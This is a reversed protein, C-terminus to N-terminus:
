LYLKNYTKLLSLSDSREDPNKCLMNDLILAKIKKPTYYWNFKNGPIYRKNEFMEYLLIGCSYIDIKNNYPKQENIEPAMYRETGVNITLDKFITCNNDLNNYSNDENITTLNNNSSSKYINNFKSLGFDTIKAVKSNTLLINTPKIDRHILSYPLRNHIYALGQLVDRM